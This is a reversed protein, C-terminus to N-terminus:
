ENIQQAQDFRKKEQAARLLRFIERSHRPNRTRAFTMALRGLQSRDLDPYELSVEELIRSPWDEGPEEQNERAHKREEIAENLLSDRIYELEHFEKKEQLSAGQKGTMYRYLCDVEDPDNKLLKTLYKLERKRAGGKLSSAQRLLTSIEASCPLSGIIAPPLQCLEQVLKELQKIRRKQESRSVPLDM